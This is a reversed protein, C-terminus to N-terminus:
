LYLVDGSLRSRVAPVLARLDDVFPHSADGLAEPPLWVHQGEPTPRLPGAPLEGTFVFMLVPPDEAGLHVVAALDLHEPVLGTEEEAERLAGALVTEGPEVSGGLGNLRGSFWKRPAGRLFLLLGDRELLLLTRPTTRHM